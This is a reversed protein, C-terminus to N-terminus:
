KIKMLVENVIEQVIQFRRAGLRMKSANRVVFMVRNAANNDKLISQIKLGFGWESDDQCAFQKNCEFGASIHTASPYLQKIRRYARNVETISSVKTAIATFVNGKEQKPDAYWLKIKEMKEQEAANPFLEEFSPPFVSKVVPPDNVFLKQKVVKFKTKTPGHLDRVSLRVIYSGNGGSLCENM